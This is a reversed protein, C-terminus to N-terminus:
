VQRPSWRAGRFAPTRGRQFVSRVVEAVWAATALGEAERESVYRVELVETFDPQPIQLLQDGGVIDRLDRVYEAM